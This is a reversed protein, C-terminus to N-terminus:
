TPTQREVSRRMATLKDAYAVNMCDVCVWSGSNLQQCETRAECNDCVRWESYDYNFDCGGAGANM